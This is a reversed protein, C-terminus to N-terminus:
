ALSSISPVWSSNTVQFPASSTCQRWGHGLAFGLGPGQTGPYSKIGRRGELPQFLSESVTETQFCARASSLSSALQSNTLCFVWYVQRCDGGRHAAGWIGRVQERHRCQLLSLPLFSCLGNRLWSYKMQSIHPNYSRIWIFDDSKSSTCKLCLSRNECGREDKNVNSYASLSPASFM